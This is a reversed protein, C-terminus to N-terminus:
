NDKNAPLSPTVNAPPAAVTGGPPFLNEIPHAAVYATIGRWFSMAFILAVEHLNMPTVTPMLQSATGAAGVVVMAHMASDVASANTALAYQLLQKKM